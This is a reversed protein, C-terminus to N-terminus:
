GRGYRENYLAERTRRVAAVIEEESPGAGRVEAAAAQGALRNFETVAEDRRLRELISFDSLSVVAVFAQGQKEVVVPEGTYRVRDTIEAFHARAERASIRQAVVAGGSNHM